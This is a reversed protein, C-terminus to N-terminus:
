SEATTESGLEKNSGASGELLLAEDPRNRAIELGEDIGDLIQIYKHDRIGLQVSQRSFGTDEKRYVFPRDNDDFFVSSIGVAIADEARDVLIEIDGSIGPRVLRGATELEFRVPFVRRNRETRASAAIQSVRATLKDGGLSDFSISAEKGIYLENVELESVTAELYMRSLDAVNMLLTGNSNSNVGNIVRGETLDFDIVIGDHPARVTARDLDKQAEILRTERISLQLQALEFDTKANLYDAENAYNEAHLAKLREYDREERELRLRESELQRQAEELRTQLNTRDLEILPQDKVVRDGEAVLLKVIRGNIESRVETELIPRVSASTVITEEIDAVVSKTIRVEEIQKQLEAATDPSVAQYALYGLGSCAAIFLTLFIVTKM